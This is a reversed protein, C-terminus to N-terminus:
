LRLDILINTTLLSLSPFCKIPGYDTLYSYVCFITILENQTFDVFDVSFHGDHCLCVVFNDHASGSLKTLPPEVKVAKKKKKKKKM